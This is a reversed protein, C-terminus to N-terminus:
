PAPWGNPNSGTEYSLPVVSFRRDWYEEMPVGARAAADAGVYLLLEGFGTTADVNGWPLTGDAVAAEWNARGAVVTDCRAYLFTDDSVFGLGGPDNAEYWDARCLSDLEYLALTLRADFALAAAPGATALASTLKDFGLETTQGDLIDIYEWFEDAPMAVADTASRAESDDVPTQVEACEVAVFEPEPAPDPDAPSVSCSSLAGVLIAAAVLTRPM